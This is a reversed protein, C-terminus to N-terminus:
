YVPPTGVPMMPPPPANSTKSKSKAVSATIAHWTGGFHVIGEGTADAKKTDVIFTYLPHGALTVQHVGGGRNWVGLKGKIGVAASPKSKATAVTVPIWIALCGNATTCEPHTKSDGTLRYVARGKSNVAIAETKTVQTQNTV